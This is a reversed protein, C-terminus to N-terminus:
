ITHRRNVVRYEFTEQLLKKVKEREPDHTHSISYDGAEQVNELETFKESTDGAAQLSGGSPATERKKGPSIVEEATNKEESQSM